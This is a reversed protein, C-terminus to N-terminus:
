RGKQQAALRADAMAQTVWGTRTYAVEVGNVRTIYSNWGRSLAVALGIRAPLLRGVRNAARVFEPSNEDVSPRRTRDLERLRREARASIQAAREGMAISFPDRPTM